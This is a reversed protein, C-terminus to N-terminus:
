KKLIEKAIDIFISHNFISQEGFFHIFIKKIEEALINFDNKEKILMIRTIEMDYENDPAGMNILGIPDYNNIISRVRSFESQYQIKLENKKM